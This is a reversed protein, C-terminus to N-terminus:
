TLYATPPRLVYHEGYRGRQRWTVNQPVLMSAINRRQTCAVQLNATLNTVCMPHIWASKTAAAGAVRGNHLRGLWHSSMSGPYPM